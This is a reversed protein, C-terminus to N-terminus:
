QDATSTSGSTAAPAEGAANQNNHDTTTAAEGSASHEASAQGDGASEGGHQPVDGGHDGAM